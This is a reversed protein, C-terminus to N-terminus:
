PRVRHLPEPRVINEWQSVDREVTRIQTSDEPSLKQGRRLRELAAELPTWGPVTTSFGLSEIRVWYGSELPQRWSNLNELMISEPDRVGSGGGSSVIVEEPFGSRYIVRLSGREISVSEVEPSHRYAEARASIVESEPVGLSRLVHAISSASVSANHRAAIHDPVDPLNPSASNEASSFEFISLGNVVPQGDMIRLEYPPDIRHWGLYLTGRKAFVPGASPLPKESFSVGGTDMWNGAVVRPSHSETFEITPGLRLPTAAEAGQYSTRVVEREISHCPLIRLEGQGWRPRLRISGLKVRGARTPTSCQIEAYYSLSDPRSRKLRMANEAPRFTDWQVALASAHLVIEFGTIGSVSKASPSGDRNRATDLWISVESWDSHPLLDNGNNRGDSNADLFMYQGFLSAPTFCALVSLVVAFRIM